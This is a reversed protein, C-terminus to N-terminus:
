FGALALSKATPGTSTRDEGDAAERAKRNGRALLSELKSVSSTDYHVLLPHPLTTAPGGRGGGTATNTPEKHAEM